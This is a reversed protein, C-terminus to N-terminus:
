GCNRSGGFWFRGTFRKKGTRNVSGFFITKGERNILKESQNKPKETETKKQV